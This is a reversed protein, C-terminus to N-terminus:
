WVWPLHVIGEEWVDVRNWKPFEVNVDIEEMAREGLLLKFWSWQFENRRGTYVLTFKPKEVKWKPKEKGNGEDTAASKAWESIVGLIQIHRHVTKQDCELRRIAALWRNPVPLADLTALVLPDLPHVEESSDDNADLKPSPPLQHIVCGAFRFTSNALWIPHAFHITTPHILFLNVHNSHVTTRITSPKQWFKDKSDSAPHTPCESLTVINPSFPTTYTVPTTTPETIRTEEPTNTCLVCKPNHITYSTTSFFHLYIMDRVEKPIGDWSARGDTPLNHQQAPSAAQESTLALSAMKDTPSRQQQTTNPPM